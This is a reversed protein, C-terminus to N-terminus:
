ENENDTEQFYGREKLSLINCRSVILHDLLEIGLINGARRLRQTLNIDDQSPEIDGSPHNHAIILGAAQNKVAFLFVERPHVICASLSGIFLCKKKVVRMRADLAIAVLHETNKHRISSLEPLMDIPSTIESHTPREKEAIKIATSLIRDYKGSFALTAIEKRLLMKEENM